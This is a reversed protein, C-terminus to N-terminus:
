LKERALDVRCLAVDAPVGLQNDGLKRLMVDLHHVGFLVGDYVYAHAM